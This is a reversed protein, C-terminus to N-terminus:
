PLLRQGGWSLGVAPFSFDHLLCREVAPPANSSPQPDLAPFYALGAASDEKEPLPEMLMPKKGKWGM